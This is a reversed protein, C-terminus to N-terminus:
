RVDGILERPPQHRHVVESVANPSEDDAERLLHEDGVDDGSRGIADEGHRDRLQRRSV